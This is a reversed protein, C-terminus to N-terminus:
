VPWSFDDAGILQGEARVEAVQLAICSPVKDIM